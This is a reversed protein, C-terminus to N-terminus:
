MNNRKRKKWQAEKMKKRRERSLMNIFRKLKVANPAVFVLLVCFKVEM